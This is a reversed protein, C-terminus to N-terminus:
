QSVEKNLYNLIHVEMEAEDYSNENPLVVMEIFLQVAFGVSDLKQPSYCHKALLKAMLKKNMGYGEKKQKRVIALIDCKVILFM